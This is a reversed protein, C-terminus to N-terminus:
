TQTSILEYFPSWSGKRAAWPGRDGLSTQSITENALVPPVTYPDLLIVQGGEGFALVAAAM